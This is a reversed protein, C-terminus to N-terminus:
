SSGLMKWWPNIYGLSDWTPNLFFFFFFSNVDLHAMEMMVLGSDVGFM